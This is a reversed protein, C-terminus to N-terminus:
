CGCGFVGQAKLLARLLGDCSAEVLDLVQEFAEGDGYYPDPLNKLATDPHHSLLLSLRAQPSAPAQAARLRELVALNDADMAVIHDFDTFDSASVQRARLASLDYGRIRAHQQSRPDPAKGTHWAETGASDAQLQASWGAQEAKYRFVAEATPSRCINGLCVFLVRVPADAPRTTTALPNTDSASV